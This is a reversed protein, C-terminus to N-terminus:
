FDAALTFFSIGPGLNRRFDTLQGWDYRLVFFGLNIRAGVGYAYGYANFVRDTIPEVPRNQIPALEEGDGYWGAAGDIFLVGNIGRLDLPLPWGLRLQEILPYRFELNVLGVRTARLDGYDIGRFTYPGGIRFYQINRGVSGGAILRTAFTYRHRINYYNRIDVIGTGFSLDGFAYEMSYRSRSGNIPGTMGYLVNDRVLAVYPEAFYQPDGRVEKFEYYSGNYFSEEYVSSTISQGRVGFEFRSFKSFPRSTMLEFGRYIQSAFEADTEATYLYYDNRYQFLSFGWNTRRRLNLYSFFLDADSLSGYIGAAFSLNHNGLIDSFSIASQGLFGVNSGFAAGGFLFDQTFRLKYKKREFETTDPLADPDEAPASSSLREPDPGEGEPFISRLDVLNEEAPPPPDPGEEPPAGDDDGATVATEEEAAGPDALLETEGEGESAPVPAEDEERPIPASSEAAVVTKPGTPAAEQRLPVRKLRLPDNLTYLNWTGRSFASFVLVEGNRSWSFPPADPIIGTIGSIVNTLPFVRDTELEYAYLNSPGDRDSVFLLDKGDPSWYPAINKGREMNPLERVEDTELDYLALRLNGFRLTEFDTGAGRDTTFAITRGDPSWTPHFDTYPDDTLRRLGGGESDCIFLNSRGGELAVFVIREGGPSFSPSLVGDFGFTLRRVVKKEDVDFLYIADEAGIKAPFALFREDPSWSISTRFFRLSEFSGTREGEVLKDLIKGDSTRALYINSYMSRDSIYAVREGSPSVAPVLNLSALDKEPDTIPRAFKEPKQYDAIQPLYTRRVEELWEDSFKKLSIGLVSQFAQHVGGVRPAVRLIEGIKEDGYKEGLFQYISQGFRYVRIDGVRSLVDIPILYGQLAADRMWMETHRDVGETSLYEAMGEMFWLPPSFGVTNALVSGSSGFLIEVQFAHVMEHTLVHELDGYSGTFPLVVRRKLFETLGGTGESILSYSINTQQFDSHSAYLILPIPREMDYGLVRSLKRYSREAMRAADLAAGKEAEYYFVEFHETKIIKWDFDRYQVKNKGFYQAGAAGPLLLLALLLPAIFRNIGM